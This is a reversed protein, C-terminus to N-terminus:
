SDQEQSWGMEMMDGECRKSYMTRTQWVLVPSMWTVGRKLAWSFNMGLAGDVELVSFVSLPFCCM